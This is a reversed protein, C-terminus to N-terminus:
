VIERYVKELKEIKKFIKNGKYVSKFVIKGYDDKPCNKLKIFEKVPIVGAKGEPYKAKLKEQRKLNYRLNKYFWNKKLKHLLNEIESISLDQINIDKFIGKHKKTM